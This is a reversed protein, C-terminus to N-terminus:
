SGYGHFGQKTILQKGPVLKETSVHKGMRESSVAWMGCYKLLRSNHFDIIKLGKADNTEFNGHM